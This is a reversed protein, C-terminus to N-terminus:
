ARTVPQEAEFDLTTTDRAIGVRQLIQGATTIETTAINGATSLYYVAGTTLGTLGEIEGEFQVNGSAPATVANVAFCHAQRGNSADALRVSPTGGDDFINLLQGQTATETFPYSKQDVGVGSPLVSADLRGAGDLAVIDGANGAGASTVTAEREAQAGGTAIEMYRKAM